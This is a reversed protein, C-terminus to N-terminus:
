GNGKESKLQKLFSDADFDECIGSEYGEQIAKKLNRIKEEVRDYGATNATLQKVLTNSPM